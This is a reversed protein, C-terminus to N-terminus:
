GALATRLQALQAVVRDPAGSRELVVGTAGGAQDLAAVTCRVADILEDELAATTPRGCGCGVHLHAVRGGLRGVLQELLGRGGADLAHSVDLCLQAQPVEDELVAVLEDTRSGWAKRGDGNEVWLRTGLARWPAWGRPSAAVVDAHVVVGLVVRPDSAALRAAAGVLDVPGKAPAHLVVGAPWHQCAQDAAVLAAELEGAGLASIELVDAGVQAAWAVGHAPRGPHTAGTSVGVPRTPHNTM